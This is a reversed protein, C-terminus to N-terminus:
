YSLKFGNACQKLIKNVWARDVLFSSGGIDERTPVVDTELDVRAKGYLWEYSASEKELPLHLIIISKDEKWYAYSYDRGDERRVDAIFFTNRRLKGERAVLEKLTAVIGSFNRHSRVPTSKLNQAAVNGACFMLILVSIGTRQLRKYPMALSIITWEWQRM